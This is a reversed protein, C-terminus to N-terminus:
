VPKFFNWYYIREFFLGQVIFASAPITPKTEKEDRSLGLSTVLAWKQHCIGFSVHVHAPTGLAKWSCSIIAISCPQNYPELYKFVKYYWISSSSIRTQWLILKWLHSLIFCILLCIYRRKSCFPCMYCVYPMTVKIIFNWWVMILSLTSILFCPLM